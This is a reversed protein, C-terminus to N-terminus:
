ASWTAPLDVHFAAGTAKGDAAATDLAIAGGHEEVIAKCIALGLGTGAQGGRPAPHGQAFRTFLRPRFAPPVGPGEDSVRIRWFTGHDALAVTVVGREPSFKIANALLNGLVQLMRDPDVAAVACRPGVTTALTVGQREALVRHQAVADEVLRILDCPRRDLVLRGAAIKDLDLLDGVVRLLRQANRLAIDVLAGAEPGLAGARGDRLLTLGGLISSLPTRLEHSVTSVLEDKFGAIQREDTVDRFLWLRGNLEEDEVWRSDIEFHRGDHDLALILRTHPDAALRAAQGDGRAAVMRMLAARVDLEPHPGRIDLLTRARDNIFVEVSRADVFVLPLPLHEILAAIRRSADIHRATPQGHELQRDVIEAWRAVVPRSPARDRSAVVLHLARGDIPTAAFHAPRGGLLETWELSLRLRAAAIAVPHDAILGPPMRITHGVAPLPPVTEEVIHREGDSSVLLVVSDRLEGALLQLGLSAPTVRRPVDAM